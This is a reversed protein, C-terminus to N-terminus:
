AQQRDDGGRGGGEGGGAEDARDAGELAGEASELTLEMRSPAM